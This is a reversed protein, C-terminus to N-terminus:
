LFLSDFHHIHTIFQLIDSLMEIAPSWSTKNTSNHNAVMYRYYEEANPLSSALRDECSVLGWVPPSFPYHSPYDIQISLTIYSPLYEAIYSNIDPPLAIINYTNLDFGPDHIYHIYLMCFADHKTLSISYSGPATTLSDLGILSHVATITQTHEPLDYQQLLRHFRRNFYNIM